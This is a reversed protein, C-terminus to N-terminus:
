ADQYILKIPRGNVGGRENFFAEAIQAGIVQEQGLLATDTTQAVAVGILIPDGSLAIATAAATAQRAQAPQPTGPVALMVILAFVLTLFAFCSVLESKKM